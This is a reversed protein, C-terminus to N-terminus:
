SAYFLIEPVIDDDSIVAYSTNSRESIFQEIFFKDTIGIGLIYVSLFGNSACHKVHNSAFYEANGNIPYSRYQELYANFEHIQHIPYQDALIFLENLKAEATQMDSTTGIIYGTNELEAILLYENM